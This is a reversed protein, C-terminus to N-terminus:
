GRKSSPNKWQIFLLVTLVPLSAWSIRITISLLSEFRQVIKAKYSRLHSAFNEIEAVVAERDVLNSRYAKKYNSPDFLFRETIPVLTEFPERGAVMYNMTNFIQRLQNYESRFTSHQFSLIAIMILVLSTLVIVLVFNYKLTREVSVM